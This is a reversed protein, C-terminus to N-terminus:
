ASRPDSEFDAGVELIAAQVRTVLDEITSSTEANESILDKVREAMVSLALPLMEFELVVFKGTSHSIYGLVIAGGRGSPQLRLMDQLNPDMVSRLDLDKSSSPVGGEALKSLDFVRHWGMYRGDELIIPVLFDESGIPGDEQWAVYITTRSTPFGAVGATKPKTDSEPLIILQASGKDAYVSGAITIVDSWQAGDFSVLNLFPHVGNVLGEWLLYTLGSGVEFYLAFISETDQSNTGPVLLRETGTPGLIDLALV